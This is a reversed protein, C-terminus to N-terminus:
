TKTVQSNIKLLQQPEDKTRQVAQKRTTKMNLSKATISNRVMNNQECLILNGSLLPTALACFRFFEITPTTKRTLHPHPTNKFM